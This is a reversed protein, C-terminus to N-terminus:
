NGAAASARTALEAVVEQHEKENFRYFFFPIAGLFSGVIPMLAVLYFLGSETEPTQPTNPVYNIFALALGAFFGTLGSQVKFMFSQASFILAPTRKGTKWEAYEISDAVFATPLVYQPGTCFGAIFSIVYVFTLNAYGGALFVLGAAVRLFSFLVYTNRKGLRQVLRTNLSMGLLLGGFTLGLLPTVQLEDGLNYKAFYILTMSAITGPTALLISAMVLLLPRNRFICNVNERLSTKEKHVPVRERTGFFAMTMCLSSFIAIVMAANHYGQGTDGGGLLLSLPIFGLAAILIGGQACLRNLTILSNREDSNNTMASCLSWLPVDSLTFSMGWLIYTVAVYVIKMTPSIDPATFCLITIIGMPITAFLMYPRFKGWRTNTRDVIYGMIPDNIGDWVRALLFITGITAASIGVIDTYFFMLYTLMMSYIANQGLGAMGFSMKEKLPVVYGDLSRNSNM